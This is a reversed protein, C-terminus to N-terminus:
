ILAGASSFQWVDTAVWAPPEISDDPNVQGATVLQLPTCTRGTVVPRVRRLRAQTKEAVWRCENPSSGVNMVAVTILRQSMHASLRPGRDLPTSAYMVAYRPGPEAPVEGDYIVVDPDADILALVAAAHDRVGTTM